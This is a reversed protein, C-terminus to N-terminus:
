TLLVVLRAVRFMMINMVSSSKAVIVYEGCILFVFSNGKLSQSKLKRKAGNVASCPLAAGFCFSVVNLNLM